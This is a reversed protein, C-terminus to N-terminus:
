AELREPYSETHFLSSSDVGTGGFRTPRIELGQRLVLGGIGTPGMLAKHGTFALADAGLRVMNIPIVGATQTVDLILPVGREKCIAGIEEVPQVTGLVNSAHTLIALRTERKICETVDSPNIFGQADFPILDFSIIGDRRLHHLPRLVSNHELRSSIVHCGPEVLGQIATNLADTANYAFIVRDPDDGGFFDCLQNRATSVIEEAQVALDYSGRGTSVGLRSYVDLMESLVEPPKPFSTAANDLYIIPSDSSM